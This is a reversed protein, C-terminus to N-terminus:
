KRSEPNRLLELLGQHRMAHWLTTMPVNFRKADEKLCTPVYDAPVRFDAKRINDGHKGRGPAIGQRRMAKWLTYVAVGLRKADAHLTTPSFDDPLVLPRPGPKTTHVAERLQPSQAHADNNM